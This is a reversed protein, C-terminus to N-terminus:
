IFDSVVRDREQSLLPFAANFFWDLNSELYLSLCRLAGVPLLLLFIGEDHAPAVIRHAKRAEITRREIREDINTDVDPINLGTTFLRSVCGYMRLGIMLLSWIRRSVRLGVLFVAHVKSDEQLVFGTQFLSMKQRVEANFGVMHSGISLKAFSVCTFELNPM